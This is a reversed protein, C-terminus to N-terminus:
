SLPPAKRASGRYAAADYRAENEEMKDLAAKVLDVGLADAMQITYLFVDALESRVRAGANQDDMVRSSEEPTLWQLEALLEGAEGALAMALNKPTHFRGWEREAAFARLRAALHDISTM